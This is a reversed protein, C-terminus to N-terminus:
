VDAGKWQIEGMRLGAAEPDSERAICLPCILGESRRQWKKRSPYWANARFWKVRLKKCRPCRQKCSRIGQTRKYAGVRKHAEGPALRPSRAIVGTGRAM